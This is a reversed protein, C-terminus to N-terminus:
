NSLYYFVISFFYQLILQLVEYDCCGFPRPRSKIFVLFITEWRVIHSVFISKQVWGIDIRFFSKLFVHIYFDIHYDDVGRKCIYSSDIANMEPLM